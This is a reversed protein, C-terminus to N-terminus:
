RMDRKVAEIEGFIGSGKKKTRKSEGKIGKWTKKEYVPKHKKLSRAGEMKKKAM